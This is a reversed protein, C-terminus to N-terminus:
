PLPHRYVPDGNALIVISGAEIVLSFSDEEDHRTEESYVERCAFSFQNCEYLTLLPNDLWYPIVAFHYARGAAQESTIFVADSKDRLALGQMYFSM